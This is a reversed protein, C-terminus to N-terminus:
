LRDIVINKYYHNLINKYDSGNEAMYKAGYQSM